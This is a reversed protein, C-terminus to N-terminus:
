AMHSKYSVVNQLFTNGGDDPHRIPSSPVNATFLLWLVSCLRVTNRRLTSQNSNVAITTGRKGVRTVRIISTIIEESVDRRVLAVHCLM